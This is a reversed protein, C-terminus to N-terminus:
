RSRRNITWRKRFWVTRFHIIHNRTTVFTEESDRGTIDVKYFLWINRQGTPVQSTRLILIIMLLIRLCCFCPYLCIGKVSHFINCDGLFCVPYYSFTVMQLMWTVYKIVSTDEFFILDWFYCCCYLIHTNM